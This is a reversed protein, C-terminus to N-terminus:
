PGILIFQAIHRLPRRNTAVPGGKSSGSHITQKERHRWCRWILVAAEKRPLWRDRAEGKPSLSIRVTDRHFGEKAHHNTSARLTELDRRAWGSKWSAQCIRCLAPRQLSPSTPSKSSSVRRETCVIQV